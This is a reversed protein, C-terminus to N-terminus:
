TSWIMSIDSRAHGVQSDRMHVETVDTWCWFCQQELGKGDKFMVLQHKKILVFLFIELREFVFTWLRDGIDVRNHTM